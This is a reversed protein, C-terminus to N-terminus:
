DEIAKVEFDEPAHGAHGALRAMDYMIQKLNFQGMARLVGVAEAASALLEKDTKSFDKNEEIFDSIANELRITTEKM